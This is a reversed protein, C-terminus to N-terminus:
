KEDTRLMSLLAMLIKLPQEEMRQQSATIM